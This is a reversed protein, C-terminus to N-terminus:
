LCARDTPFHAVWRLGRFRAVIKVGIGYFQMNVDAEVVVKVMDPINRWGRAFEVGELM